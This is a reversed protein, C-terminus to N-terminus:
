VARHAGVYPPIPTMEDDRRDIEALLDSRVSLGLTMYVAGFRQVATMQVDRVPSLRRPQHPGKPCVWTSPTGPPLWPLEPAKKAM